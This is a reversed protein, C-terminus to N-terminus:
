LQESDLGFVLLRRGFALDRFVECALLVVEGM